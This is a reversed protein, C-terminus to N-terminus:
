GRVGKSEANSREPGEPEPWGSYEEGPDLGLHPTGSSDTGRFEATDM